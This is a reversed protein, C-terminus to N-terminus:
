RPVVGDQRGRRLRLPHDERGPGPRRLLKAGRHVHVLRRLVGPRPVAYDGRRKANWWKCGFVSTYLSNMFGIYVGTMTTSGQNEIEVDWLIGDDLDQHSWQRNIRTVVLDNKHRWQSPMIKEAENQVPPYIGYDYNNIEYGDTQIPQLGMKSPAGPYWNSTNVGVGM